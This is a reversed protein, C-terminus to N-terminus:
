WRRRDRENKFIYGDYDKAYPINAKSHPIKNLLM